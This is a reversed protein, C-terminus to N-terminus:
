LIGEDLVFVSIITGRARLSYRSSDGSFFVGYGYRCSLNSGCQFNLNSYERVRFSCQSLSLTDGRLVHFWFDVFIM